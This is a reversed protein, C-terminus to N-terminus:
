ETVTIGYQIKANAFIAKLMDFKKDCYEGITLKRDSTRYSNCGFCIEIWAIIINNQDLFLIANRPTYCGFPTIAYREKKHTYNFIIDTLQNTQEPSLNTIEEYLNLSLTDKGIVISNMYNILDHGLPGDTKGKFSIIKIQSTNSFPFRTLREKESFNNKRVCQANKDYRSQSFSYQVLLITLFLFKRM